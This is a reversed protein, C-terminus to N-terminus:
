TLCFGHLGFHLVVLLGPFVHVYFQLPTKKRSLANVSENKDLHACNGVPLCLLMHAKAAEKDEKSANKLQDIKDKAKEVQVLYVGIDKLVSQKSLDKASNWCSPM